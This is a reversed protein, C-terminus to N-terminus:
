RFVNHSTLISPRWQSQRRRATSSMKHLMSNLRVYQNTQIRAIFATKCVLHFGFQLPGITTALLIYCLYATTDRLLSQTMPEGQAM